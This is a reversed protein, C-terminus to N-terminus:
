GRCWGSPSQEHELLFMHSHRWVQLAPKLEDGTYLTVPTQLTLYYSAMSFFGFGKSGSVDQSIEAVHISNLATMCLQLPTQGM